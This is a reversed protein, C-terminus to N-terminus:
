EVARLKAPLLSLGAGVLADIYPTASRCFAQRLPGVVIRGICTLARDQDERQLEQMARLIAWEDGSLTQCPVCRIAFPRFASVAVLSLLEDVLRIAGPCQAIQYTNEFAEGLPEGREVAVRWSRVSWVFLQGGLSLSATRVESDPVLTTDCAHESLRRGKM